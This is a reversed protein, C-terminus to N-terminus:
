SRRESEINVRLKKLGHYLRTKVTNVNEDLIKAIEEIKLDEFFRLVIIIRYKEPLDDLNKKLDLNTYDEYCEIKELQEVELFNSYKKNKRLYDISCNVVIRYFWTKIFKIEKLKEVSNLAKYISDQIIDLADQENRVYSYAVRYFNERNEIIFEEVKKRKLTKFM